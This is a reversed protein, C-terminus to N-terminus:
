LKIEDAIPDGPQLTNPNVAPQASRPARTSGEPELIKLSVNEKTKVGVIRLLSRIAKATKGERGVIQGMDDAHVTLKLLTGQEDVTRETKVAEPHDVLSKVLYELFEQDQFKEM